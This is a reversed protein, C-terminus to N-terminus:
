LYQMDVPKIGDAIGYRSMSFIGRTQTGVVTLHSHKAAM